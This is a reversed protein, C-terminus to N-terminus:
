FFNAATIEAVHVFGIKPGVVIQHSLADRNFSAFDCQRFFLLFLKQLLSSNELLIVMGINDFKYPDTKLLLRDHNDHLQHWTAAEEIVQTVIAVAQIWFHRKPIHRSAAAPM